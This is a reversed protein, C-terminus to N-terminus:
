ASKRLEEEMKLGFHGTRCTSGDPFRWVTPVAGGSQTASGTLPEAGFGLVIEDALLAVSYPEVKERWDCGHRSEMTLSFLNYAHHATPTGPM